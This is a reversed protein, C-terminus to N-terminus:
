GRLLVEQRGPAEQLRHPNLVAAKVLRHGLRIVLHLAPM